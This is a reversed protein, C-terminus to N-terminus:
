CSSAARFGGVQCGEASVSTAPQKTQKGRPSVPGPRRPSGPHAAAAVRPEVAKTTLPSAPARVEGPQQRKTLARQEFRRDSGERSRGVHKEDIGGAAVVRAAGPQGRVQTRDEVHRRDTDRV